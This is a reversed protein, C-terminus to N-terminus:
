SLDGHINPIGNHCAHVQRDLTRVLDVLAALSGETPEYHLLATTLEATLEPMQCICHIMRLEPFGHLVRQAEAKVSNGKIHAWAIADPDPHKRVEVRKDPYLLLMSGSGPDGDIGFYNWHHDSM